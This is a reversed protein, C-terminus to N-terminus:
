PYFVHCRFGQLLVDVVTERDQESRTLAHLQPRL